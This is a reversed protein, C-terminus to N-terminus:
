TTKSRRAPCTATIMSSSPFPTSESRTISSPRPTPRIPIRSRAAVSPPVNSNSDCAPRPVVTATRIGNGSAEVQFSLPPLEPGSRCALSVFIKFSAMPSLGFSVANLTPVWRSYHERVTKEDDGLLDGIECGLVNSPDSTKGFGRSRSGRDEQATNLRECSM